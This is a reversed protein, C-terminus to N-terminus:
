SLGDRTPSRNCAISHVILTLAVIVLPQFPVAFRANDYYQTVAQSLSAGFLLAYLTILILRRQYSMRIFLVMPALFIFLINSIVWAAKVPLWFAKFAQYLGQRSEFCESYIINHVRWFRLWASFVSQVYGWPHKQILDKAMEHIVEANELSNTLGRERLLRGAYSTYGSRNDGAAEVADRQVRYAEQFVLAVDGFREEDADDIYHIMHAILDAKPLTTFTFKSLTWYNFLSWGGVLLIFPLLLTLGGLTVRRLNTKIWISYPVYIALYIPVLIILHPRIWAGLSAILGVGFLDLLSSQPSRSFLYLSGCVALLALPETQIISEYFALQLSLSMLLVAPWTFDLPMVRRMLKFLLWISLLGSLHQVIRIADNNHGLLLMFLPYGPTRRGDYQDFNMSAIMEALAAYSPSDNGYLPLYTAVLLVRIGIGIIAAALLITTPKTNKMFGFSICRNEM